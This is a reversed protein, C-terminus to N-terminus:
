PAERAAASRPTRPPPIPPPRFQQPDAAPHHPQGRAQRLYARAARRAARIRGMADSPQEATPCQSGDQPDPIGLLVALSIEVLPAFDLCQDLHDSLRIARTCPQAATPPSFTYQGRPVQFSSDPYYGTGLWDHKFVFGSRPGVFCDSRVFDLQDHGVQIDMDGWTDPPNCPLDSEAPPELWPSPLVGPDQDHDVEDGHPDDIDMLGHHVIDGLGPPLHPLRTMGLSQFIARTGPTVPAPTLRRRWPILSNTSCTTM